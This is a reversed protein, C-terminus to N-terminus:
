VRKTDLLKTVRVFCNDDYIVRLQIGDTGDSISRVSHPGIILIYLSVIKVKRCIYLISEKIYIKSKIQQFRFTYLYRFIFNKQSLGTKKYILPKEQSKTSIVIEENKITHFKSINTM